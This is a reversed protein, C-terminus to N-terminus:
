NSKPKEGTKEELKALEQQKADIEKRLKALQELEHQRTYQDEHAKEKKRFGQSQAVSGESYVNSLGRALMPTATASFRRAVSNRIAISFM